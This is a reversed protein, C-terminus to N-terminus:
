DQYNDQQKRRIMVLGLMFAIALMTVSFMLVIDSEKVLEVKFFGAPVGDVYVNYDGPESRSVSFTLQSSSGSNVTVGQTSEAEGNVYLTVTRTGNVTGKNTITATVTIPMGPTVTRASLSASQAVLNSLLIPQTTTAAGAVSSGRPTQTGTGISRNQPAEIVTFGGTKTGTGGHTTVSVNRAGPTVGDAICITATIRTLSNVTVNYSTIGTGFNVTAPEVFRTGTIVVTEPCEGQLGSAPNVSTVTPPAAEIRTNMASFMPGHVSGSPYQWVTASTSIVESGAPASSPTIVVTVQRSGLAALSGLSWTVMGGAYAGGNSSSIYTCGSPVIFQAIVNNAAMTNSNNTVLVTFTLASGTQGSTPGTISISLSPFPSVRTSCNGVSPGYDSGLVDQWNVTASDTLTTEQTLSPDVQLTVSVSRSSNGAITGLNWTVMGFLPVYTGSDSCSVFSMGMPLMDNLTTNLAAADSTNALSITYTCNDGPNATNPGSKTVVLQPVSYITTTFSTSTPGFTSGLADKWTVLAGNALPTDNPTTNDVLVTLSVSTNANPALSGLSWIINGGSYTGPPSSSVYAYKDPLTDVLTINQANLGGFNNLSVTFTLNGGPRGYEPGTKSISLLPNTRAIVKKNANAPGFSNGGGDKWTVAFNNTLHSGNTVSSDVQVTIWGPMAVGSDVHGLQWTVTRTAPDYVAGHSSGVFSLGVPLYDILVVNEAPLGGVNTVTGTFSIYSGVTAEDPGEKTITLQPSSYAIIERSASVPGYPNSLNDYWTAQFNNILHSGNPTTNDVLVSIWGPISSGSGVTGLQWTVTRDGPNYVASHSSSVFTLGAPLYDVLVVNEAPGSGINALTGTFTYNSGIVAEPQGEKTITLQPRQYVTLDYYREQPGYFNGAADQWSLLTVLTLATGDPTAADIHVTMSGSMDTNPTINGLNFTVNDGSIVAARSASVFSMQPGPLQFTLITNVATGNSYNHLVGTYLINEGAFAYVPPFLQTTLQPTSYIVISSSHNVPGLPNGLQNQWNLRSNTTVVTGDPVNSNIQVTVYGTIEQGATITPVSITVARTIPNYSGGSSSVYTFEPPIQWTLVNNYATSTSVNRVVGSYTVTQGAYGYPPPDINLTLDPNQIVTLQKCLGFESTNGAADRATGTISDTALLGKGTVDIACNFGNNAGAMTYTGLYIGGEGYGSPDPAATFFELISSRFTTSINDTGVYGSLSLTNGILTAGTLVPYDMGSNGWTPVYIGDNFNVGDGTRENSTRCLDIGLGGNDYCSNQSIINNESKYTSINQPVIFGPGSNGTVINKRITNNSAMLRAGGTDYGLIGNRLLTNNELLNNGLGRYSDIGAGGNDRCLNGTITMRQTFTYLEIGDYQDRLANQFVENGSITWDSNQSMFIGVMNYGVYNNRIIGKSTGHTYIGASRTSIAPNAGNARTGMLCDEILINTGGSIHIQANTYDVSGTTFGYIALGKVTISDANLDFGMGLVNTGKTIEIEPRNYRPLMINDTGVTDGTGVQGPNTNGQNTTQTTGDITVGARTVVLAGLSPNIVIRWWHSSANETYYGPDSPPINFSITHPGATANAQTIAWRLSGATINDATFTVTYTAAEAPEYNILPLLLPMAMLLACAL